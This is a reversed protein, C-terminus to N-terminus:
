QVIVLALKAIRRGNRFRGRGELNRLPLFCASAHLSTQIEQGILVAGYNQQVLGVGQGRRLDGIKQSQGEGRDLDPQMSSAAHQLLNHLSSAGNRVAVASHGGAM